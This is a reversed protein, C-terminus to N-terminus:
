ENNSQPKIEGSLAFTLFAFPVLAALGWRLSFADSLFGILPPAFLFATFSIMTMAAVNDAARGPRNAAATM